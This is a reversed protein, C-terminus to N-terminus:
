YSKEIIHYHSVKKTMTYITTENNNNYHATIKMNCSYWVLNRKVSAVDSFGASIAFHEDFDKTYLSSRGIDEDVFHGFSKFPSFNVQNLHTNGQEM